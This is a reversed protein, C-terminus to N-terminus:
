CITMDRFDKYKKLLLIKIAKHRSYLHNGKSNLDLCKRSRPSDKGINDPTISRNEDTKTRRRSVM